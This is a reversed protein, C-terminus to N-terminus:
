AAASGGPVRPNTTLLSRGGGGGGGGGGRGEGGGEGADLVLDNVAAPLAVARLLAGDGLRRLKVTRDASGSAVVAAAEGAGAALATVPLTHDSWAHLPTPRAFAPSHPDALQLPDLLEALPWVHVLTDEGGSLLM